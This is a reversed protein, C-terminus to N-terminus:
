LLSSLTNRRDLPTDPLTAVHQHAAHQQRQYWRTEMSTLLEEKEGESEHELEHENQHQMRRVVQHLFARDTLFFFEHDNENTSVDALTHRQEYVTRGFLLQYNDLWTRKNSFLTGSLLQSCKQLCVSEREVALM